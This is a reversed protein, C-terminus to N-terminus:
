LNPLLLLVGVKRKLDTLKSIISYEPSTTLISFFSLQQCVTQHSTLELFQTFCNLHPSTLTTNTQNKKVEHQPDQLHAVYHCSLSADFFEGVILSGSHNSCSGSWCRVTLFLDAFQYTNGWRSGLTPSKRETGTQLNQPTQASCVPQQGFVTIESFSLNSLERKRCVTVWKNPNWIRLALKLM